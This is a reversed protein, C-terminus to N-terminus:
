EPIMEARWTATELPEITLTRELDAFGNKRLIVVHEGSSVPLIVPTVATMLEGDVFVQVPDVDAVSIDIRGVPPPLAPSFPLRDEAGSLASLLLAGTVARRGISAIRSPNMKRM